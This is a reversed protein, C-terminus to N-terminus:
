AKQLLARSLLRRLPDVAMALLYFGIVVAAGVAALQWGPLAAALRLMLPKM